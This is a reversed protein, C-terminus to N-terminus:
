PVRPVRVRVRCACLYEEGAEDSENLECPEGCLPCIIGEDSRVKVRVWENKLGYRCPVPGPKSLKISFPNYHKEKGICVSRTEQHFLLWGTFEVGM